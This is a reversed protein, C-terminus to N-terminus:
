KINDDRIERPPFQIQSVSLGQTRYIKYIHEILYASVVLIQHVRITTRNYERRLIVTTKPLNKEKSISTEYM